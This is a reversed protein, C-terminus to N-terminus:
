RCPREEVQRVSIGALAATLLEPLPAAHLRYPQALYAFM